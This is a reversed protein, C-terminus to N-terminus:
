KEKSCILDLLSPGGFQTEILSAVALQGLRATKKASKRIWELRKRAKIKRKLQKKTM